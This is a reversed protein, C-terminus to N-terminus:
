YESLGGQSILLGRSYKSFRATPYPVIRQIFDCSTEEPVKIEIVCEPDRYKILSNLRLNHYTIKSDFTIRMEALSFYSRIYSVKLSPFLIGDGQEFPQYRLAKHICDVDKLHLTTKFRGEISSIKKELTFKKNNDYWRIRVKKRPLLGEESDSFMKTCANDFYVSLVKRPRHLLKMGNIKFNEKMRFYEAMTVRYKFEQRFSM